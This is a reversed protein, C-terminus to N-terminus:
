IGNSFTELQSYSCKWVIQFNEVNEKKGCYAKKLMLMKPKISVTKAESYLGSKLSVTTINVYYIRM